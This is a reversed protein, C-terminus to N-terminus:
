VITAGKNLLICSAGRTMNLHQICVEGQVDGGTDEEEEEEEESSEEYQGILSCVM